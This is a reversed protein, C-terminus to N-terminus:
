NLTKGFHKCVRLASVVGDEHFGYRWYAGCYYTRCIGNIEDHHEQARVGDATFVPHHYEISAIHKEPSIETDSNLTVIFDPPSPISQLINMNYSVCAAGTSGSAIHYNWSAWARRARPMFSTDTHLVASNLQYPIAGLLEKERATPDALISLAQDSHTAIIVDDFRASGGDATTVAVFDPHRRVSVVPTNLMVRERFGATLPEIYRCSGGHIVYWQPQDHVNLFGHNNFFQAFFVLPCELMDKTSSSWIAAGMPVIFHSVFLPSYGQEHLYTGLVTEYSTNDPLAACARNFKFIEAIMRYFAPKLLNRRQAFFSNLSSARYELGTAENRVSFSMTSDRYAVGLQTLLRTFNPYTKNNFVIFGTDVMYEKGDRELRITNTHGGIYSNAEYVTIEHDDHLLYAATLGSIGTGIVAIRRSSHQASREPM